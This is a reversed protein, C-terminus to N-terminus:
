GVNLLGELLGRVSNGAYVSEAAMLDGPYLVQERAIGADVLSQRFTGPLLGSSVPPTLLMGEADRIFINSIAGETVEGRENTFIIDFWGKQVAKEHEANYLDRKTTKFYLFPDSSNVSAESIGLTVKGTIEKLPESSLKIDGNHYLIARIRYPGKEFGEAERLLLRRLRAADFRFGSCLAADKMRDVHRELLFFGSSSNGVGKDYGAPEWKMTEIIQIDRDYPLIHKM